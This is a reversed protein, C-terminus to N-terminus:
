DNIEKDLDVRIYKCNNVKDVECTRVRKCFNSRTCGCYNAGERITLFIALPLELEDTSVALYVRNQGM